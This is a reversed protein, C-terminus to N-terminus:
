MSWRRRAALGLSVAGLILAASPEPVTVITIAIDNSNSGSGNVALGNFAYNITYTLIGGFQGSASGDAPTITGFTGIVSDSADNQVIIFTKPVTFPTNPNVFTFQLGANALTVAGTVNAIDATDGGLDIEITYNSTAGAFTLAGTALTGVSEGPALTGLAGVSVAGSITGVGGLVGATGNSGVSVSGTGTASGATTNSAFLTGGNVQTAGTTYTSVGTLKLTGAGTKRLGGTGSIAGNFVDNTTNNVTLNASGLTIVNSGASTASLGAVTQAFSNMDLTATQGTAAALALTTTSPLAAAIGMKLKGRNITTPGTYTNAASLQLIAPETPTNTSNTGTYNIGGGTAGSLVATINLDNSAPNAQGAVNFAHVTGGLNIAGGASGAITAPSAFGLSGGGGTIDVYNLAGTLTLMGTTVDFRTGSGQFIQLSAMTQSVGAALTVSGTTNSSSSTTTGISVASGTPLANTTSVTVQGAIVSTAAAYTSAATLTLIGTGAKTLSGAGTIGIPLTPSFTNTDITGGNAGLTIPRTNTLTFAAGYQFGGGDLAITNTTAGLNNDATARVLGGNVNLNGLTNAVNPVILLGGGNKTLPTTGLNLATTLLNVTGASLVNATLANGGGTIGGSLGLSGATAGITAASGLTIVGAYLSNGSINDLAGARGTAGAGNLTIPFANLTIGAIGLSAGTNVTTSTRSALGLANANVAAILAGGNLTIGGTFGSNNASLTQSGTFGAATVINGAGNFTGSYTQTSSGTINFNQGSAITVTGASGTLGSATAGTNFVISGANMTYLGTINNTGNFILTGGGSKILGGTTSLTVNSGVTLESALALNATTAGTPGFQVTTPTTSTFSSANVSTTLNGSTLVLTDSPANGNGAQPANVSPVLTVVHGAIELANITAGLNATTNANTTYNVNTPTPSGLGFNTINDIISGSLLPTISVFFSDSDFGVTYGFGAPATGIVINGAGTRTGFSIFDHSGALVTGTLNLTNTGTLSITGASIFDISPSAIEFDLVSTSLSITSVTLTGISSGPTVIGASAVNVTRNVTGSGSLRGSVTVPNAATSAGITGEVRLTAGSAVTYTGGGSQTAGSAVQLTGTSVTTGGTYTNNGSLIVTGTGQKTLLTGTGSVVGALEISAAQSDVTGTTALTLPKSLSVAATPQLTGGSFQAIGGPFNNSASVRTTGAVMDLSGTAASNNGTLELTGAQTSLFGAFGAAVGTNLQGTGLKAVGAGANAAIGTSLTLTAATTTVSIGSPASPNLNIGTLARANTATAGTYALVGGSLFAVNAANGLQNDAIFGLTGQNVYIDGSMTTSNDAGLTLTSSGAKTLGVTTTLTSNIALASTIASVVAERGGSAGFVFAPGTSVMTLAANSALAGSTITLPGTGSAFAAGSALWLSNITTASTLAVNTTTLRVNNTNSAGSVIATAYNATTVLAIFGPGTLGGATGGTGEYMVFTTPAANSTGGLLWPVISNTTSTGSFAAGGGVLNNTKFTSENTSDSIKVYATTGSPTGFSGAGGLSSATVEGTGRNSRSVNSPSVLSRATASTSTAGYHTHARDFSVPGLVETYTTAVGSNFHLTGGNLSIPITDGIRGAGTPYTDTLIVLTGGNITIGSSGTIQGTTTGLIFSGANITTAGTYSANANFRVGGALNKVLNSSGTVNANLVFDGTGSNTHSNINFTRTTGSLQVPTAVNFVNLVGTNNQVDGALTLIGTGFIITNSSTPQQYTLGAITQNFAGLNLSGGNLINLASGTPISDNAAIQLTGATITTTGTYTNAGSLVLTGTGTKNMGVSGGLPASITGTGTSSSVNITGNGTLNIANGAITFANTSSTGNFQIGDLTVGAVIDQTVTSAAAPTGFQAVVGAANPVTNPAWNAATNWNGTANFSYSIFTQAKALSATLGTAAVAAILLSRGRSKSSSNSGHFKSEHVHKSM